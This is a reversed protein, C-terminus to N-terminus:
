KAKLITSKVDGVQGPDSPTQLASLSDSKAAVAEAVAHTHSGIATIATSITDFGSAVSDRLKSIENKVLSALAVNDTPANEDDGGLEIVDGRFVLQPGSDSGITLGSTSAKSWAKTADYLGPLAIGDSLHHRRMDAPDQLGGAKRWADISGEAFLLLVTDGQQIPFTIRFGGAGPFVVPCKTVQPLPVAVDQTEQRAYAKVQPTADVTQADADYRDVVAPIATHVDRLRLDFLKKIVWGLNPTLPDPVGSM